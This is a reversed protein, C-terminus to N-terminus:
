QEIGKTPFCRRLALTLPYNWKHSVEHINPMSKKLGKNMELIGEERYKEIYFMLRTILEVNQM